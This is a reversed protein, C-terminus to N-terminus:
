KISMRQLEDKEMNNLEIFVVDSEQINKFNFDVVCLSNGDLYCIYKRATIFPLIEKNKYENIKNEFDDNFFHSQLLENLKLREQQCITFYDQLEEIWDPVTHTFMKALRDLMEKGQKTTDTIKDLSANIEDKTQM